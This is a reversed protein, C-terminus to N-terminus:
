DAKLKAKDAKLWGKAVLWNRGRDYIRRAWKFEMALVAFGAPIVLFAPGPLFILLVGVLILLTGVTGVVAKRTTESCNSALWDKLKKLM